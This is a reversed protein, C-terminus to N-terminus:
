DNTSALRLPGKGRNKSIGRVGMLFSENKLSKYAEQPSMGGEVYEEFAKILASAGASFLTEFIPSDAIGLNMPEIVKAHYNKWQNELSM